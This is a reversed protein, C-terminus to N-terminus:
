GRLPGVWQRDDDSKIRGSPSSMRKLMAGYVQKQRMAHAGDAEPSLLALDQISQQRIEIPGISICCKGVRARSKAQGLGCALGCPM